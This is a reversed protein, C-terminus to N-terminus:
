AQPNYERLGNRLTLFARKLQTKVTNVSIGLMDATEQYKKENVFILEFIQRRREPLKNFVADIKAKMEKRELIDAQAMIDINTAYLQTYQALKDRQKIKTFAANRVATSLYASFSHQVTKFRSEKWFQIIVDQVLDEAESKSKLLVFAQICLKKYYKDFLARYGLADGEQLLQLIIEDQLM